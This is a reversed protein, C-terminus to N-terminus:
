RQGIEVSLQQAKTALRYVAYVILPCILLTAAFITAIVLIKDFDKKDEVELV